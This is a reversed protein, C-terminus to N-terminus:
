YALEMYSREVQSDVACIKTATVHVSVFAGNSILVALDIKILSTDKDAVYQFENFHRGQM